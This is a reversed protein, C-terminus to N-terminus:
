AKALSMRPLQESQPMQRRVPQRKRQELVAGPRAGTGTTAAESGPAQAGQSLRGFYFMPNPEPDGAMYTPIVMTTERVTVGPADAAALPVSAALFVVGLALAASLRIQSRMM